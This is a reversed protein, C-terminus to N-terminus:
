PHMQGETLALPALVTFHWTREQPADEIQVTLLRRAPDYHIGPSQPTTPEIAAHVRLVLQRPAPQYNGTRATITLTLTAPQGPTPSAQHLTFTTTCSAGQQYAFTHGDDEYLTFSGNGPYLDLTLTDLPREDTYAMVPATPLIAGARVYIPMRELPAHALIHTPGTIREDTWWDFWEGAPLYVARHTHGPRYIPAAVLFPGSMVQDHLTYTAPDDPFHYLLPRLVPTGHTSAEWFLSYLYPLLRYRLQMYERYIAEVESGFAWPEQDRTDMATHNRCFPMFTAFQVWRALLEGNCHGFFGGVDTGVFPVGSLGMNMLQPLAMELHEWWSHNDGMWCASWRQIGAFGSRTLVFPREAPRHRRLGEYAAQSMGSGYLNHVEAHTTREDPNGQPAGLSITKGPGVLGSSFPQDFATPENMDNWIGSVGADLLPKHQDGWWERVAPRTFDAFVAADPWVYSHFVTGDAERVFMDRELGDRYVAYHPDIKVGPDIITVVRFGQERLDALMRQPDPFRETNWTFVRYGVMYDIDLHIVDCPINRSRFNAVLDRVVAESGYTWRSQHHGLAWRPPLPMTGLLRALGAMVTAPTRGHVVYYDLEGNEVEMLWTDPQHYGMSFRSRWTNNLVLGYCLGPRVSLLVPIALYMPDTGPGHGSPPDTTWNVMARGRKDLLGAREGFGFFHEDEAIRKTCTLHPVLHDTFVSSSHSTRGIQIGQEDACFINGAADTFTLGATDHDIHVAILSTQVTIAVSTEDVDFPTVPFDTDSPTVAWSRRPAFTDDPTFRVRVCNSSLVTLALHGTECDLFLTQTDRTYSRVAGPRTTSVSTM